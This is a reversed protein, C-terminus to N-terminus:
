IRDRRQEWPECRVWLFGWTKGQGSEHARQSRKRCGRAGEENCKM